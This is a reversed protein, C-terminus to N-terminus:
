QLLERLLRIATRIGHLMNEDPGHGPTWEAHAFDILKLAQIPPIPPQEDEDDESIPEHTPATAIYHHPPLLPARDSPAEGHMSSHGNSSAVINTSSNGNSARNQYTANEELSDLLQKESKFAEQLAARDGEYM